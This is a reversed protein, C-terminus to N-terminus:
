PLPGAATGVQRAAARLLRCVLRPLVMPTTTDPLLMRITLSAPKIRGIRIKDLPEEIFGHLTEGSLGAFDVSVNALVVVYPQFDFLLAAGPDADLLDAASVALAPM